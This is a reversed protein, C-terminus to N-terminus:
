SWSLGEERESYLRAKLLRRIRRLRNEVAKRTLGLDRAITEQSEYYFYARYFITRDLTPLRDVMGWVEDMEAKRLVSRETDESAVPETRWDIPAIRAERIISRRCDLARYKAIILLWTKLSGRSADYERIRHWVSVFVDSACEEIDEKNGCGQLVRGILSYVNAGYADILAALAAPEGSRLREAWRNDSEEM